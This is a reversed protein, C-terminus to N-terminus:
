TYYPGVWSTSATGATAGSDRAVAHHRRRAMARVVDGATVIGHLERGLMVLVRRIGAARMFDAADAVAADPSLACVPGCSMADAVTRSELTERLPAPVDPLWEMPEGRPARGGRAPAPPRVGETYTPLALESDAPTARADAVVAAAFRALEPASVVGVVQGATVVPAGGLRHRALVRLAGGLSLAPSLTVVEATMIDRLRLM